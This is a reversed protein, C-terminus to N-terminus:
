EYNALEQELDNKLKLPTATTTKGGGAPFVAVTRGDKEMGPIWKTLWDDLEIKKPEYGLWEGVASGEAFVPHPWVPVMEGNEDDGMLAWGENWLSWIERWDAVKKIFYEYRKEPALHTVSEFEKGSVNWTM